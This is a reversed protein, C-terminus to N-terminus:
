NPRDNRKNAKVPKPSVKGGDVSWSDIEAYITLLLLSGTIIWFRGLTDLNSAWDHYTTWWEFIRHM